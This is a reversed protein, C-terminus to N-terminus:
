DLGEPRGSGVVEGQCALTSCIELLKNNVQNLNNLIEDNTFRITHIGVQCLFKDRMEDTGKKKIHYGGDIEIALNLKSCYFDLIFRNIPKQRSFKYGTKKGRLLKQWIVDEAETPHYRNSKAMFTLDKVYNVNGHIPNIAEVVVKKYM